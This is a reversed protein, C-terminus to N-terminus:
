RPRMNHLYLAFKASLAVSLHASVQCSLHRVHDFQSPLSLPTPLFAPFPSASATSHPVATPACYTLTLASVQGLSGFNFCINLSGLCNKEACGRCFKKPKSRFKKNSEAKFISLLEISHDYYESALRDRSCNGEGGGAASWYWGRQTNTIIILLPCSKSQRRAVDLNIFNEVYKGRQPFKILYM